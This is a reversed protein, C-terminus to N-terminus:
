SSIPLARLVDELLKGLSALRRRAVLTASSREVLLKELLPQALRVVEDILADATREDPGSDSTPPSEHATILPKIASTLDVVTTDTRIASAQRGGSGGAPQSEPEDPETTSNPQGAPANPRERTDTLVVADAPRKSPIRGDPRHVRPLARRLSQRDLKGEALDDVLASRAEPDQVKLLEEATSVAIKGSKVPQALIPDEFVRIRTSVYRDSKHIAQAIQRKTWQRETFLLLLGAAEEEPPIDERQLNELLTEVYADEASIERIICPIESLGVLLAARFRRDGAVIVYDSGSPRVTIPNLIGHARISEALENMAENSLTKRPNSPNPRILTAALYRAEAMGREGPTVFRLDDTPRYRPRERAVEALKARTSV